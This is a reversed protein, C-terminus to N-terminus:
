EIKDLKEVIWNSGITISIFVIWYLWDNSHLGFSILCSRSIIVLTMYAMFKGLKDM